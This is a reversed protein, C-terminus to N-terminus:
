ATCSFNGKPDDNDVFSMATIEGTQIALALAGRPSLSLKGQVIPILEIASTLSIGLERAKFMVLAMQEPSQPTGPGTFMRTKHVTEAFALLSEWEAMPDRYPILSKTM